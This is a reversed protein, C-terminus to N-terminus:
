SRTRRRFRGLFIFSACGTMLVSALVLFFVALNTHARKINIHQSQATFTDDRAIGEAWLTHRGLEIDDPLEVTTSINGNDDATLAAISRPSSNVWVNVGSNPDFGNAELHTRGGQTPDDFPAPPTPLVWPEDKTPDDTDNPNWATAPGATSPQILPLAKSWTILARAQAAHGNRNPHVLEQRTETKITLKLEDQSLRITNVYGARGSCTTRAPQFAEVVDAAYYIPRGQAALINVATEATRNLEDVVENALVVEEKALRIFCSGLADETDKPLPRVYPMVIIPAIKGGRAVLATPDNVARDLLAYSNILDPGLGAAREARTPGDADPNQACPPNSRRVCAFIFSSFGIDNGGGTFFVADPSTEPNIASERLAWAQAHPRNGSPKTTQPTRLHTTHAGSCAIVNTADEGFLQGAYTYDSKHCWTSAGKGSTGTQYPPVGEGSSYSDGLVAVRTAGSLLPGLSSAALTSAVQTRGTVQQVQYDEASLIAEWDYTDTDDPPRLTFSITRTQGPKLNGLYRTPPNTIITQEPGATLSSFRLGLQVNGVIRVANNTITAEATIGTDLGLGSALPLVEPVDITVSVDPKAAEAITDSLTSVDSVDRYTGGTAEAICLLEERGKEDIDFGIPNVVIEINDSAIEKAVECPKLGCNARGDSVLVISGGRISTGAAAAAQDQRQILKEAAIHLAPGTPTDGDAQLKNIASLASGSKLTQLPIVTAAGDCRGPGPGSPYVMLSFLSDPDPWGTVRDAASVKAADLKTTLSNDGTFDNMSESIDLLLVLPPSTGQNNVDGAQNNVDGAQTSVGRRSVEGSTTHTAGAFDACLLLLVTVMLAALAPRLRLPPLTIM